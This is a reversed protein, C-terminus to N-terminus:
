VCVPVFFLMKKGSMDRMATAQDSRVVLQHTEKRPCQGMATTKKEIERPHFAKMEANEILALLCLWYPTCHVHFVVFSCTATRCTQAM